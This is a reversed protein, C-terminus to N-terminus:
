RSQAGHRTENSSWVWAGPSDHAPAHRTRLPRVANSAASLHQPTLCDPWSKPWRTAGHCSLDDQLAFQRARMAPMPLNFRHGGIGTLEKILAGIARGQQAWFGPVAAHEARVPGDRTWRLLRLTGAAACLCTTDVRAASARSLTGHHDAPLLVM